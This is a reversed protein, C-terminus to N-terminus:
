PLIAGRLSLIGESTSSILLYKTNVFSYVVKSNGSTGVRMNQNNITVDTFIFRSTTTSLDRPSGVAEALEDAYKNENKLMYAFVDSYSILEVTYGYESKQITGISLGVESDITSSIESMRPGATPLPTSAQSTSSMTQNDSYQIFVVVGITIVAFLFVVGLLVVFPPMSVRKATINGIDGSAAAIDGVTAEKNKIEESIDHEFTDINPLPM